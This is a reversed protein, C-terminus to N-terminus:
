ARDGGRNVRRLDRRSAQASRRGARATAQEAAGPGAAEHAEPGGLHRALDRITPYKFLAVMPVDRGLQEILRSQLTAMHLSHGGVDFFNDTAGV